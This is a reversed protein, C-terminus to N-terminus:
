ICQGENERNQYAAREAVKKDMRVRKDKSKALKETQLLQRSAKQDQNEVITSNILVEDGFSHQFSVMM